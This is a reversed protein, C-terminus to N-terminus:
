DDFKKRMTVGVKGQFNEIPPQLKYISIKAEKIFSYQHKIRRIIGDAVKELLPTAVQMRQKVINFLEEYNITSKLEDFKMLGEDYTVQLDVEYSSGIKEEGENLGHFANVQINKLEISIM